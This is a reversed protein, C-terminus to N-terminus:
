HHLFRSFDVSYNSSFHYSLCYHYSRWHFCSSIVRLHYNRPILSHLLNFVPIKTKMQQNLLPFLCEFSYYYHHNDVVPTTGKIIKFSLLFPISQIVLLLLVSHFHKFIRCNLLLIAMQFDLNIIFLIFCIHIIKKNVIM